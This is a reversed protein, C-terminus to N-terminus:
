PDGDTFNIASLNSVKLAERCELFMDTPGKCSKFENVFMGGIADCKTSKIDFKAFRSKGALVYGFPFQLSQLVVGKQDVIYVEVTIDELKFPYTNMARFTMRCGDGSSEVKNLELALHPAEAAGARIGFVIATIVIALRALFNM